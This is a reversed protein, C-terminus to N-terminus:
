IWRRFISKMKEIYSPTEEAIEDYLIACDEEEKQRQQYVRYWIAKTESDLELFAFYNSNRLKEAEEYIRNANIIM